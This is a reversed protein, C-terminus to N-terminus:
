LMYKRFVTRWMRSRAYPLIYQFSHPALKRNARLSCFVAVATNAVRHVGRNVQTVKVRAFTRYPTQAFKNTMYLTSYFM